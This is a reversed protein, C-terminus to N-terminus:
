RAGGCEYLQKATDRHYDLASLTRLDMRWTQEGPLIECDVCIRCVSSAIMWILFGRARAASVVCLAAISCVFSRRRASSVLDVTM